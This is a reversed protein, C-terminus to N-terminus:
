ATEELLGLVARNWGQPGPLETKLLGPLGIEAHGGDPRAVLVPHDVAKLMPLDNLADGLGITTLGPQKKAYLAAVMGVAKGKDSGQLLHFFRGGRTVQLGAEQAARGFAVAQGEPDPLLVPENFERQKALAAAELSLGTLAAIEAPDMDGFGRAEFRQAFSAFRKRVEAIAMGVPLALWGDPAPQWDPGALAHGQPAFIGGGNEAIFPADLGLETWLPIMESRTKSSCLVLPAGREKLATLAGQAAQWAYDHHDLLTGDLDTFVVLAM